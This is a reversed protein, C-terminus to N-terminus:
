LIPLIQYRTKWQNPSQKLGWSNIFEKMSDERFLVKFMNLGDYVMAETGTDFRNEKEDLTWSSPYEFSIGLKQNTYPLYRITETSNEIELSTNATRPFTGDAKMEALRIDRICENEDIKVLQEESWPNRIIDNQLQDIRDNVAETNSDADEESIGQGDTYKKYGECDTHAKTDMSVNAM